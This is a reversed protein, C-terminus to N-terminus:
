GKIIDNIINIHHKTHLKLMKVTDKLNLNGFYPHVFFNGPQLSNLVNIRNKLLEIDKKLDDTNFVERPMVREPAKAKGRPIKNLTYVLFKSFSFKYKYEAPNSKEVAQIINLAVLLSHQIHWGVTTKSVAMNIKESHPIKTELDSVLATLKKM